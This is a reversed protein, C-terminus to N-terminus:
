PQFLSSSLIGLKFSDRTFCTRTPGGAWMRMVRKLLTERGRLLPMRTRNTSLCWTRWTTILRQLSMEDKGECTYRFFYFLIFHSGTKHKQVMLLPTPFNEGTQQYRTNTSVLLPLGQKPDRCNGAWLHALVAESHGHHQWHLRSVDQPWLSPHRLCDLEQVSM